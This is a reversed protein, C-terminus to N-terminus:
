ESPALPKKKHTMGIIKKTTFIWLPSILLTLSIIIITLQYEFDTIIKGYYASSTLVFSLEGVQALLAGGYLSKEWNRGFYHLITGNIFHNTLYVALILFSIIKWNQYLFDLDILMGISVFFIAVFIVRFSHLSDHFWETSRAAHIVLGGVFAGLAASLGFFETLVAFGFCVIFAVFVQLEHDEEIYRSFPLTFQEKKSLWVIGFILFVGGTIQLLIDTTSPATGGLYNTIILMPVILIDQILLISIVSQGIDTSSEKNDQLLKIVIASSSLSIVFGFFIIQNINWDMNLGILAVIIISGAIQLLTGVTPIKWNKLLNPLNIEMGIFFLLLILGFEGLIHIANEDTLIKFGHKGLLIGAVIYAIVYPQKFYRLIIGLLIVIAGLVVFSFLNSNSALLPIM